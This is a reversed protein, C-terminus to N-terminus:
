QGCTHQRLVPGAEQYCGRGRGGGEGGGKCMQGVM